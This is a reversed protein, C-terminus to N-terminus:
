ADSGDEKEAENLGFPDYLPDIFALTGQQITIAGAPCFYACQMCAVCEESYAANATNTEPNWKYVDYICHRICSECGMCKNEDVHVHHLRRPDNKMERLRKLDLEM